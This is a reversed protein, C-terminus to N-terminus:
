RRRRRIGALGAALGILVASSPEPIIAYTAPRLYDPVMVAAGAQTNERYGVAFEGSFGAITTFNFVQSDFMAVGQGDPAISLSLNHWGSPSSSLDITALVTWDLGGPGSINGQGGDNADILYLAEGLRGHPPRSASKKTTGTSAQLVTPVTEQEV